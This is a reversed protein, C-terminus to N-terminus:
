YKEISDKTVRALILPRVNPKDLSIRIAEGLLRSSSICKEESSSYLSAVLDGRKVYDGIKKHLIIGASYDINDEKKERGAGLVMSAIGCKETDM